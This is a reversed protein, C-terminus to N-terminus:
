PTSTFSVMAFEAISVPYAAVLEIINEKMKPRYYGGAERYALNLYSLFRIEIGSM